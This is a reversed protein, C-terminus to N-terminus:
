GQKPFVNIIKLVYRKLLTYDTSDINGDGNLDAAYKDDAVPLDTVIRLIYRKMLTLDTSNIDGDGNLDGIKGVPTPSPLVGSFVTCIKSTQKLGNTGNVITNGWETLTTGAWDVALDLYEVGGGNGKWSWALWGVNKEQCYNLITAEDVDGSSHKWGFEGIVLALGQNIVGDINSKVQAATGGSYEYFHIAFMTNKLTDANFVDMGYDHISQPYQGWGACDVLITHKLGANRIIPIAKKYGEAWGSGSWSGFWENAINIIVKDEKGILADKIEVFYNAADLLPQEQDVGLPDHVELVAIMKYQECLALINKVSNIDDKQWKTGNSLVIRVTNSGAKALAPITTALQDKYWTHAHNVGRMVFPYGNADFLHSGVVKFQGPAPIPSPNPNHTSGAPPAGLSWNTFVTKGSVQQNAMIKFDIKMVANLDAIKSTNMWNTAATKWIADQLSFSVTKTRGAPVSVTPSEHWYWTSGTSIGLGIQVETTTPNTVTFNVAQHQTWNEGTLTTTAGAAYDANNINQFNVELSNGTSTVTITGRHYDLPKVWTYGGFTGSGGNTPVPSTVPSPSTIPSPSTAPTTGPTTPSTGFVSCTKSTQKLGNLGNVITNGWETLSYGAWDTSLDLYEVGGGNGKWSWALWGVKKEQCYNLITAEDVDGSTHKWGFEGITLALGQNLVGDINSKITAADKGSYEYFHIAFMTNKLPDANFVEKGSQHISAPYQGWGACDVLITHTLGANRIVPIAAKYGSAWGSASWEGYWENAINIIVKDEKGILANKIKVFYNAARLLTQQDNSGTADHVELVAIMKYQECLSIINRVSSESDETWQGGDSLVIRVTNCGARALAPIVTALQDKYWTHAHNVGRMVFENGNADLLRTGSVMFGGAATVGVSFASFVSVLLLLTCMLSVIRKM